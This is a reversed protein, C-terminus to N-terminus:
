FSELGPPLGMAKSLAGIDAKKQAEISDIVVDMLHLRVMEKFPNGAYMGMPDLQHPVGMAEPIGAKRMIGPSQFTTLAEGKVRYAQIAKHSDLWIRMGRTTNPHVGAANFTTGRAGPRWTSGTALIGATALGGGLSHGTIEFNNGYTRQVALALDIARLYQESGIGTGQQINNLWDTVGETGRFALVVTGDIDSRYLAAQFDSRPDSWVQNQLNPPLNGDSLRTWGTPAGSDKYVDESLRAREVAVNNKDLRDAAALVSAQEPGSLSGAKTRGAAILRNRFALRNKKCDLASTPSCGLIPSGVRVSTFQEAM